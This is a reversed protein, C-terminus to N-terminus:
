GIIMRMLVRDKRVFHHYLAAGIHAAVLGAIALGMLSHVFFLQESFARNEPWIPPLDFLGFVTIPARYASTAIWGCFPQVILLAYLGWHTVHAAFRQIAAIDAPLPLPPYMWRWILRAVVILILLAGLSRHLHYFSEQLSGGWENAIVVGLPIMILILFATLWHLVRARVTYAPAAIADSASCASRHEADDGARMAGSRGDGLSYMAEAGDTSIGIRKDARENRHESLFPTRSSCWVGITRIGTRIERYMEAGITVAIREAISGQRM